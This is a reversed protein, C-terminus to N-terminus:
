YWGLQAWEYRLDDIEAFTGDTTTLDGQDFYNQVEAILDEVHQTAAANPTWTPRPTSTPRLAATPTLAITLTAIPEPISASTPTPQTAAVCAVSALFLVLVFSMIAIKRKRQM